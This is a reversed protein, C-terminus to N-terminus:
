FSSKVVAPFLNCLKLINLITLKAESWSSPIPVLNISSGYSTFKVFYALHSNKQKTENKPNKKKLYQFVPLVPSHNKLFLFCLLHTKHNSQSETQTVIHFATCPPPDWAVILSDSLQLCLSQLETFCLCNSDIHYLFLELFKCLTGRADIALM